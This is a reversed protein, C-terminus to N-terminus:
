GTHAEPCCIACGDADLYIRKAASVAGVASAFWGLRTYDRISLQRAHWGPNRTQDNNVICEKM